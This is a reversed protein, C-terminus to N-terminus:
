TDTGLVITVDFADIPRVDAVVEGAGLARQLREAATRQSPHHYRIETTVHDFAEANGVVVITADSAVVNPAVRRVHDRDGIGDLLRVRTRPALATGTPYPVLDTIVARLADRDVEFVTGGVGDDREAVPITAVELHGAALGRVFRGMGSDLEGPVAAADDSAAVAAIWAEWFLQHRFLPSLASEGPRTAELWRAVDEARLEVIGAPFGELDDPNQIMLPAVPRILDAWRAADLEILDQVGVGAVAEGAGRMVDPTAGFAYTVELTAADTGDGVEVTRPLLLVSGGADGSALALLAASRLVGGSTHIVLLTPTPELLAEFGPETPAARTLTRGTSSDRLTRIGVFALTGGLLIAAALVAAFGAMWRRSPGSGAPPSGAPAPLVLPARPPAVENEAVLDSAPPAVLPARRRSSRSRPAEVERAAAERVGENASADSADETAARADSVASAAAAERAARRAARIGTGREPLELDLGDLAASPGAGLDREGARPDDPPATV